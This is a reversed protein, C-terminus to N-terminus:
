WGHDEGDTNGTCKFGVPDVVNDCLYKKPATGNAMKLGLGAMSINHCPAAASCQLSAVLSNKVTGKWNRLAIHSLEFESTDCGGNQNNFATCQTITFVGGTGSDALTFNEFTLNTAFGLGGGGGNPPDGKQVGTWTKIYAAHKTNHFRVDRATVNAVREYRGPYQGVSGIAIGAGNYFDCDEILINTSNAKPSISDDGNTVSWRRFTINDSFMTDVGDTNLTPAGSPSTSSVYIDQLLVDSSGFVTMTRSCTILILLISVFFTRRGVVDPQQHVQHGRFSLQHHKQHRNGSTKRSCQVPWQEM